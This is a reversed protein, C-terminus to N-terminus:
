SRPKWYRNTLLTSVPLERRIMGEEQMWEILERARAPNMSGTRSLLPSTAEVATEVAKRDAEDTPDLTPDREAVGELIAQTAAEPDELAAANGREVAAIFDGIAEPRKDLLGRRTVLVLEEYAPIGLDEVRTIVPELGRSELEAGEVNWSGGFIADVRGGLLDPVLEYGVDEVKVDAFTLGAQGLASKLFERQFPLGPVGITKGRLEAIGGIKSRKLWIMAATPDPVLSAVAVLPLGRDNALAVQPQHSVAFDVEGEALYRIPRPPIIPKRITIELGAEAFYGQEEAMLIGVNEPDSYGNITIELQQKPEADEAGRGATDTDSGQGCGALLLIGM